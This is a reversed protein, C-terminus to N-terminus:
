MHLMWLSQNKPLGTADRLGFNDGARSLGTDRRAAEGLEIVFEPRSDSIGRLSKFIRSLTTTLRPASIGNGNGIAASYM